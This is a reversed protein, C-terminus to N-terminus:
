ADNVAQQQVVPEFVQQECVANFWSECFTLEGVRTDAERIEDPDDPLELPLAKAGPGWFLGGSPLEAFECERADTIEDIHYILGALDDASFIGVAEHTDIVRVLFCSM